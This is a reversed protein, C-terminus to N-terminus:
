LIKGIRNWRIGQWGSEDEKQSWGLMFVRGIIHDQPVFGWNRSDMSNPRNDGMVFYYDQRFTYDQRFDGNIFVSDNRCVLGNGEYVEIVRRYFPISAENLSVTHGKAPILVPGYNDPSRRIRAGDDFPFSNVFVRNDIRRKISDVELNAVLSDVEQDSLVVVWHQDENWYDEVLFNSEVLCKEVKWKNGYVNYLVRRRAPTPQLQNNIFVDGDKVSLSDGPLGVCRKVYPIRCQMPLCAVEGYDAIIEPENQHTHWRIIEHYNLKPDSVFVTDGEPFNFVIVDQREIDSIGKVRFTKNGWNLRAGLSMKEAVIWDGPVITNKMSNSPVYYMGICFHKILIFLVYGIILLNFGYSLVTKLYKSIKGTM